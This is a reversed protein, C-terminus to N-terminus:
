WTVHPSPSGKARCYLKVTSGEEKLITPNRMKRPESFYPRREALLYKKILFAQLYHIFLYKRTEVYYM